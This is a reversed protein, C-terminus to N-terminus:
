FVELSIIIISEDFASIHLDKVSISKFNCAFCDGVVGGTVGGTNIIMLSESVKIKFVPIWLQGIFVALRSGGSFHRARVKLDKIEGGGHNYCLFQIIGM